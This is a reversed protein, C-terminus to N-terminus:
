NNLGEFNQKLIEVKLFIQFLREWEFTPFGELGFVQGFKM